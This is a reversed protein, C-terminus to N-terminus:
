RASTAARTRTGTRRRVAFLERAAKEELDLVQADEEQLVRMLAEGVPSLSRHALRVVGCEYQLGPPVLPLVLLEGSRVETLVSILPMLTVGDTGAVIMKMMAVSECAIPPFSKMAPPVPNDGYVATLFRKLMTTPLRSTMVVPFQLISQLTLVKKSAVLPHGRRVVFYGQHRHLRTVHLDPSEALEDVVIVAIDIERKRLLPLLNERHDIRIHLRITPHTRVLRTIARDVITASPYTGAGICLEGKDLGRLLDMERGLDASRAVVERAQELFLRGAPTPM